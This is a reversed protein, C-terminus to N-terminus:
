ASTGGHAIQEGVVFALPSTRHVVKVNKEVKDFPERVSVSWGDTTLEVVVGGLVLEINRQLSEVRIYADDESVEDVVSARTEVVQNRSEHSAGSLFLVLSRLERDIGRAAYTPIPNVLPPVARAFDIPVELVSRRSGLCRELRQLREIAYWHGVPDPVRKGHEGSETIPILVPAQIQERM